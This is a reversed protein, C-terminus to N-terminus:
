RPKRKPSRGSSSKKHAADPKGKPPTKQAPVIRKKPTKKPAPAAKPSATKRATARPKPPAKKPGTDENEPVPPTAPAAADSPETPQTAEAEPAARRRTPRKPLRSKAAPEIALLKERVGTAFPNEVFDAGLQHLMSAFEIGKSKPIARELGAIVGEEVEADTALDLIRMVELTGTDLPIAHGGLASQVVYAVTFGTAGDIARIAETAPGLNKKRLGELDFSYNDEFVHQLARKVRNAAAPPEPLRAFVEALERISSVRVENYDFFVDVLAALAEEAAAYPANELLCGFLYHELIPRNADPSVPKYFRKLVKHLNTFQNSRSPPAM